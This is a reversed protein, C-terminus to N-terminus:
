APLRARVSRGAGGTRGPVVVPPPVEGEIAPDVEGRRDQCVTVGVTGVASICGHQHGPQYGEDFVVGVLEREGDCLLQARVLPRLFVPPKGVVGEGFAGAVYVGVQASPEFLGRLALDLRLVHRQAAHAPLLAHRQRVHHHGQEECSAIEPLVDVALTGVGRELQALLEVELQQDDAEEVARYVVRDPAVLHLGSGDREFPTLPSREILELLKTTTNWNRITMSKYIPLGVVKSLRSQSARAALRSFYLVGGGPYIQDVGERVPMSRLAVSATLPARLFVVDYRFKAPRAGFGDPAREVVRRLQARSRIVVTAPYDFARTLMTEIDRALRAAGRERTTFVVNGSQIYTVVDEYGHTEFCSRLDAMRVLNKGGVNIGRLLAVYLSV